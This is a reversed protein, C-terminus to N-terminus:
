KPKQLLAAFLTDAQQNYGELYQMHILQLGQQQLWIIVDENEAKFVSCTCYLLYGDPKVTPLINQLIKHQTNAYDYIKDNNFFTLQEPTRSWTGSGSCPADVIVLDFTNHLSTLTTSSQTVDLIFSNYKKIGAKNFRTHLNQMVSKRIDSVTLQINLLTDYALISKGGSAACADWVKQITRTTAKQAKQMFIKVQQSSIDQICVEEDISFFQEISCGSCIKVIYPEIYEYQWSLASLKNLVIEKKSPRIRLYVAPQILHSQEFAHLNLLAGIQNSFNFIQKANFSLHQHLFNIKEKISFIRHQPWLPQLYSVLLNHTSSTLWIGAAFRQASFDNPMAKGVRYYAYCLQTIQKRDTSGYKKHQKFFLKLYHHFPPHGSYSKLLSIATQLYSAFHMHTSPLLYNHM